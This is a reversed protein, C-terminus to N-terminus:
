RWCLTGSTGNAIGVAHATRPACRILEHRSGPFIVHNPYKPPQFPAVLRVCCRESAPQWGTLRARVPSGLRPGAPGRLARGCGLSAPWSSRLALTSRGCGVGRPEQSKLAGPPNSQGRGGPGGDHWNSGAVAGRGRAARLNLARARRLGSDAAARLRQWLRSCPPAWAGSAVFHLDSVGVPACFTPRRIRL